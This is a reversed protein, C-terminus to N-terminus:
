GDAPGQRPERTGIWRAFLLLSGLGVIWAVLGEPVPGVRGLPAGGRDEPRDLHEVYRVLDDLEDDGIVGASFRPMAGPGVRVAEATQRPTAAFLDPAIVSPGVAGGSGASNHCAACNAGYILNGAALEGEEPDVEPIPPGDGLTSVYAVLAEIEDEDYAPPKRVAQDDDTDLPMRGTSLYFDTSAPGAEELDPGRDSGEGALGHCSSCGTVYLRRGEEVLDPAPEGGGASALGLASTAILALVGGLVRRGRTV